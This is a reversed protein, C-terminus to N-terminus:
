ADDIQVQVHKNPTEKTVSFNVTTSVNTRPNKITAIYDGHFLFVEFVGESNARNEEVGSTWEDILEDVVDGIETNEFEEDALMVDFGSVEPGGFIIVGSVAPHSFAERLIEEFYEAQYPGKGVDVETLWIPLGMTGLTELASRMYALNPQSYVFHGQLGIGGKIGENGPFRLIEELKKKYKVPSAERDRSYEITNYENMFLITDSELRKVMSFIVASANEGLKDEFFRFHLNENVVDWGILEGAYRSVASEVRQMTAKQLKDSPLTKVWNPQMKPNDWLINHGRISINHKKAFKVMADAVTYNESGRKIETSYWKMENTFSTYRFRSVFWDQYGKSNLIHHNMGCGFPFGLMTQRISVVAGDAETENEYTIRMRVKSRRVKNISKEQHSRWQQKTFPQLSVSGIWIDASTNYSEFLIEVSSLFNTVIGGKLFSWCGKKAEVEGGPILTGNTTRFMIAVEESENKSGKGIQVWASVVYFIGKKLQIKQSLSDLSNTRNEVKVFRNGTESKGKRIPAKGFNSWGKTGHIFEPNVILGGRYQAREPEVLCKTTASYDYSFDNICHVAHDFFCLETEIGISAYLSTWFCIGGCM